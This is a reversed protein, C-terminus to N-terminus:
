VLEFKVCATDMNRQQSPIESMACTATSAFCRWLSLAHVDNNWGFKSACKGEEEWVGLIIVAMWCALMAGAISLGKRISRDPM